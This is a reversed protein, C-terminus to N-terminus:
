SLGPHGVGQGFEGQGGSSSTNDRLGNPAAAEIAQKMEAIGYETRIRIEPAAADPLVDTIWMLRACEGEARVEFSAHHYELAPRAGDVVSYALRRSQEDIAIILERIVHGDPFTLFREVGDIRTGVVRGPLLREHVAGVDRVVDWVHQPSADIAIDHRISAM